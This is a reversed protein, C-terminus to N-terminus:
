NVFPLRIYFHTGRNEQSEVRITGGLAEVNRKVLNLGIGTGQVAGANSARYFLTFLFSLDKKPIGIGEDSVVLDWFEENLISKLTVTTGEPSYKFANVILNLLITKIMFPDTHLEPLGQHSIELHQENRRMVETEARLFEMLSSIALPEHHIAQQGEELQQISLFDQLIANLHHVAQKIRETHKHRKPEEEATPYKSILSASSLITSLPTRFEHSAMTLFRTKHENLGKEWELMRELEEKARLLTFNANELEVTREQVRLELNQNLSRLEKFSQAQKISYRLSRELIEPTFKGKVLYDSAGIELARHDVDANDLGTLLIFPGNFGDGIAAKIIEIGNQLPLRYDILYVEHRQQHLERIFSDLNQVWDLAFPKNPIESFTDKLILYDDEDDELLLVRM